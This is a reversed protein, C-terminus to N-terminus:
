GQSCLLDFAPRPLLSGTEAVGRGGGFFFLFFPFPPLLLTDLAHRAGIGGRQEPSHKGPEKGASKLTTDDLLLYQSFILLLLLTPVWHNEMAVMGGADDGEVREM